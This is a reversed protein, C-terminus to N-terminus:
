KPAVEESRERQLLEPNINHAVFYAEIVEKAAGHGGPSATLYDVEDVYLASSDLVGIPLGVKRALPLDLIENGIFAVEEFSVGLEALVPELLKAKNIPAQLVHKVGLDNMRSSTAESFRGSIVVFELGARMALSIYFGDSVNFQKLELGDPGFFITDDTLVGDVDCALLKIPRMREVLGEWDLYKKGQPAVSQSV